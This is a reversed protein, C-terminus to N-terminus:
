RDATDHASAASLAPVAPAADPLEEAYVGWLGGTEAWGRRGQGELRCWGERCRELWLVAGPEAVAEIPADTRPRARLEVEALVYVSRRNSLLSQHMWTLEGDPDAVRRWSPTEAVVQLPLGQRRYTWVIPHGLSPGARGNAEGGGISVFRPVPQGSPTARPAGAMTLLSAATLGAMFLTKAWGMVPM